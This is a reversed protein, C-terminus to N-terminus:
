IKNINVFLINRLKKNQLIFNIGMANDNVANKELLMLFIYIDWTEYNTCETCPIAM